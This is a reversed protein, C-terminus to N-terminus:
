YGSGEVYLLREETENCAPLAVTFTSGRGEESEVEIAGNYDKIIGYSISLGLGTGGGVEKTTFFPEFIKDQIHRPIGIGTDSITVLVRDGEQYSRVTLINNTTASRSAKAKKSEMADRANIVLDIFVQELRNSDAFVNPLGEELELVIDIGRIELQRSLLTFVGEIPKNIDIPEGHFESKRGFERMHNIIGVARAVQDAIQESVLVLDSDPIRKGERVMTRFFDTGIQIASLPQNLEHAVGTAMEGLTSMKGAQILQTEKTLSETIDVTTAIIGYKGSQRAQRTYVNVYFSTGDKRWHRKKSYVNFVGGGGKEERSLVGHAYGKDGLDLFSMRLLEDREYGYIELARINVDLINLTDRELVFISNPDYDFLTHYKEESERLHAESIKLAHEAMKRENIEASVSEIMQNTVMKLSEILEVDSGGCVRASLDGKSVRHLVSFHEALGMAFEHSLTVIENLNQATLDVMKKLKAILELEPEKSELIRVDPNGSAIQGLAEFVQSLGVALEISINELDQDREEVMNRFETFQHNVVRLTEDISDLGINRNFVECNLCMEIKELFKGQLEKRCHTGSFLWCKLDTSGFAPCAPEECKLIEWCKVKNSM